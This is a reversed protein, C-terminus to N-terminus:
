MTMEGKKSHSCRPVKKFQGNLHRTKPPESAWSVLKLDNVQLPRDLISMRQMTIVLGHIPYWTVIDEM